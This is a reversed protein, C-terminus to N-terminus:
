MVGHLWALALYGQLELLTECYVGQGGVGWWTTRNMYSFVRITKLSGRFLQLEDQAKVNFLWEGSIDLDM